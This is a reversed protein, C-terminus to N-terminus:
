LFAGNPLYARPPEMGRWCVAGDLSLHLRSAVLVEVAWQQSGTVHSVSSKAGSEAARELAAWLLAQAAAEDTAAVLSVYGGSRAVYCYGRRDGDEFRFAWGDGGALFLHDPGHASGRVTRDVADAFAPDVSEVVHPDRVHSSMDPEGEASVIPHLSFGASTYLRLARGDDSACIAGRGTWGVLAASMLRRGTGASQLGPRVALLSLAWLDERLSASAVGVVEGAEVAVWQRGPDTLLLHQMRRGWWAIREDDWVPPIRGHARDVADFAAMPIRHLGEVDDDTMARIDTVM